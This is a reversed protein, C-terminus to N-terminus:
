SWRWIGISQVSIMYATSSANKTNTYLKMTKIGPVKNVFPSGIEVVNNFTSTSNYGDASGLNSGGIDFKIWGRDTSKIILLRVAYSGIGLGVKFNLGDGDAQTANNEFYYNGWAVSDGNTFSWTGSVIQHYNHPFLTVHEFNNGVESGIIGSVANFTDNWDGAVLISGNAHDAGGFAASKVAM